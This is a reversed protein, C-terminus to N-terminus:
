AIIVVQQICGPAIWTKDPEIWYGNQILGFVFASPPLESKVTIDALTWTNLYKQYQVHYLHQM